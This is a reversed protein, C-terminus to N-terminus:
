WVPAPIPTITARQRSPGATPRWRSPKTLVAIWSCDDHIRVRVWVLASDFDPAHRWKTSQPAFKGRATILLADFQAFISSPLFSTRKMM